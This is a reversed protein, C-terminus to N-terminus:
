GLDRLVSDLINSVERISMMHGYGIDDYGNGMLAIAKKCAEVIERDRARILASCKDNGFGSGDYNGSDDYYDSGDCDAEILLAFDEASQM